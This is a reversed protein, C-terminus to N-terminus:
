SYFLSSLNKKLTIIPKSVSVLKAVLAAGGNKLNERKEGEKM